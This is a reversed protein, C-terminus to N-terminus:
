TDEKYNVSMQYAGARIMGSVSLLLFKLKFESKLESKFESKLELKLKLDEFLSLSYFFASPKQKFLTM